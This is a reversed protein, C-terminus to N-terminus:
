MEYNNAMQKMVSENERIKSNDSLLKLEKYFDPMEDSKILEELSQCSGWEGDIQVEVTEIYDIITKLTEKSIEIKM